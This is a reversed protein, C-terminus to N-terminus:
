VITVTIDAAVLRGVHDIPLIIEASTWPGGDKIEVSRVYVAPTIRNIAGSIEFPSIPGGVVFGAEDSLNGNAYDLIAQRIVDTPNTLSSGPKVTVRVQIRTDTPRSFKVAYVQGSSPETVNVTTTGNWAAGATKNELLALAVNADTGGDVCVYISHAVMSIGDITQTTAAVNERFQLSKVGEVAYLASTVAAPLSIGQLALTNRRLARLSQDSQEDKGLLADAPNTVTEWGLVGDVIQNLDGAGAPIPGFEVSQMTASVTGGSGITFVGTTEFMDGIATRARTGAPIVTGIVGSLTATVTSRTAAERQLGTLACIADLFIGEALNPNIQNAIAANNRAMADRAVAEATILVGQPTDSTVVLDAGFASKYENQVATLIDGTDPVIVGSEKVYGYDAM